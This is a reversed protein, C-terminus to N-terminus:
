QKDDLALSIKLDGPLRERLGRIWTDDSVIGARDVALLTAGVVPKVDLRKLAAHPASSYVSEHIGDMLLNGKGYFVGGGLVVDCPTNLLDLQRLFALITRAIECGQERILESAVRDGESAATFVLPTLDLIQQQTIRHQAIWEALTPMDPAQLASLVMELLRTPEGRGDWSRFAAGMAGMGLGSGGAVRDGTMEGLAPLRFERGDQSVGVANFGTGCVIGVGYPRTSGARFVALTDNYLFAQDCLNLQFVVPELQSFDYRM